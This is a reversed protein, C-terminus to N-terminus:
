DVEVELVQEGGYYGCSSCVRHPIKPDGCRQCVNTPVPQAKFHTRRKRRRQKSIKKKPVAM